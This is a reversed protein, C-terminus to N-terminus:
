SSLKELGWNPREAAVIAQRLSNQDTVEEQWLLGKLLGRLM